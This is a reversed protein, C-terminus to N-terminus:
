VDENRWAKGIQRIIGLVVSYSLLIGLGTLYASAVSIFCTVLDPDEYFMRVYRVFDLKNRLGTYSLVMLLLLTQGTMFLNGGITELLLDHVPVRKHWPIFLAGITVLIIATLVLM